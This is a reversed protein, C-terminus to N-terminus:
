QGEKAKRIVAEAKDIFRSGITMQDALCLPKGDARAVVYEGKPDGAFLGRLAELAELMEGAHTERDIIEAIMAIQTAQSEHLWPSALIEGAARVAGPTPKTTTTM